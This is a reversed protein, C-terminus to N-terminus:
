RENECWTYPIVATRTREVAYVCRALAQALLESGSKELDRVLSWAHKIDDDDPPDFMPPTGLNSGM